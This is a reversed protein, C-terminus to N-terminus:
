HVGVRNMFEVLNLVRTFGRARPDQKQRGVRGIEGGAFIAPRFDFANQARELRASRVVEQLSYGLSEGRDGQLINQAPEAM